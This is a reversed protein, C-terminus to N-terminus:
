VFPVTFFSRGLPCTMRWNLLPSMLFTQWHKARSPVIKKSATKGNQLQAKSCMFHKKKNIKQNPTLSIGFHTLMLPHFGKLLDCNWGIEWLIPTQPNKEWQKLSFKLKM